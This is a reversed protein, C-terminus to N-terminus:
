MTPITATAYRIQCRQKEMPRDRGASAASREKRKKERRKKSLFFSLFFARALVMVSRANDLGVGCAM